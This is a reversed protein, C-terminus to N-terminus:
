SNAYKDDKWKDGAMSSSLSMLATAFTPGNGFAVLPTGDDSFIGMICLWDEPDKCIVKLFRVDEPNKVLASFVNSSFKLLAKELAETRSEKEGELLRKTVSM